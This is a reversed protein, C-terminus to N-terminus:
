RDPHRAENREVRVIDGVRVENGQQEYIVARM